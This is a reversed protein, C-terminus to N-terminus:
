QAEAGVAAGDVCTSYLVDLRMFRDLAELSRPYRKAHATAAFYATELEAFSQYLLIDRLQLWREDLFSLREREQRLAKPWVLVANCNLQKLSPSTAMESSVAERELVWSTIKRFQRECDPVTVPNSTERIDLVKNHSLKM